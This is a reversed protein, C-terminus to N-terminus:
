KWVNLTSAEETACQASESCYHCSHAHQLVPRVKGAQQHSFSKGIQTGAICVAIPRCPMKCAKALLTINLLAWDLQNSPQYQDDRSWTRKAPAVLQTHGQACDQEIVTLHGITLWYPLHQVGVQWEWVAHAYNTESKFLSKMVAHAYNTESKCLPKM